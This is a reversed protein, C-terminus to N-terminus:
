WVLTPWWEGSLHLRRHLHAASRPGLASKMVNGRAGPFSYGVGTEDLNVLIVEKGAAQVLLWKAWNWFISAKTEFVHDCKEQKKTANKVGFKPDGPSGLFPGYGNLCITTVWIQPDGPSGWIQTVFTCVQALLKQLWAVKQELAEQPIYRREKLKAYHIQWRVRHRKCWKKSVRGFAPLEFRRALDQRCSEFELSMTASSPAVGRVRCLLLFGSLHSVFYLLACQSLLLFSVFVNKVRRVPLVVM